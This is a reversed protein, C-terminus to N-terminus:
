QGTSYAFKVVKKSPKGLSLVYTKSGVVHEQLLSTNTIDGKYDYSPLLIYKSEIIQPIKKENLKLNYIKHYCESKKLLEYTTDVNLEKLISVLRKLNNSSDEKYHDGIMKYLGLEFGLEFFAYIAVQSPM